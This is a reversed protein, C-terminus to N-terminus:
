PGPTAPRAIPKGDVCVGPCRLCESLIMTTSAPGDDFQLFTGTERCVPCRAFVVISIREKAVGADLLERIQTDRKRYLGRVFEGTIELLRDKPELAHDPFRFGISMCSLSAPPPSPPLCCSSRKVRLDPPRMKRSRSAARDRRFLIEWSTAVTGTSLTLETDPV